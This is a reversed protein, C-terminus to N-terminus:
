VGLDIRRSDVLVNQKARISARDDMEIVLERGSLRITGDAHMALRAGPTELSVVGEREDILLRLGHSFAIAKTSNDEKAWKTPIRSGEARVCGLCYVLEPSSADAAVLVTQDIEPVWHLGLEAGAAPSAVPL